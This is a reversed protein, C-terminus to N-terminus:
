PPLPIQSLMTRLLRLLALVVSGSSAVIAGQSYGLTLAQRWAQGSAKANDLDGLRIGSM